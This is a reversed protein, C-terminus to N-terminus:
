CFGFSNIIVTWSQTIVKREYVIYVAGVGDFLEEFILWVTIRKKQCALGRLIVDIPNM